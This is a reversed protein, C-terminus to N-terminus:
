HLNGPVKASSRCTYSLVFGTLFFRVFHPPAFECASATTFDNNRSGYSPIYRALKVGSALKKAMLDTKNMFLVLHAKKLLPNKCVQKWLLVTDELRNM